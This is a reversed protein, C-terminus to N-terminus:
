SAHPMESYAFSFFLVCGVKCLPHCQHEPHRRSFSSKVPLSLHWSMREPHQCLCKFIWHLCKCVQHLCRFVPVLRQPAKCPRLCLPLRLCVKHQCQPRPSLPQRRVQMKLAHDSVLPLSCVNCSGVARNGVCPEKEETTSCYLRLSVKCHHQPQFRFSSKVPLSLYMSQRQLHQCLCKLVQGLCKLALCLRRPAQHPGRFVPDPHRSTRCLRQCLPSCLWERHQRRCQLLLSLRRIQLHMVFRVTVSPFYPGLPSHCIPLAYTALSLDAARLISHARLAGPLATSM